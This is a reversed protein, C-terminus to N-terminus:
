DGEGPIGLRSRRRDALRRGENQCVPCYHTESDRFSILAIKTGCRPCPEGPRGHVAMERRWLDQKVPLGEPCAARVRAAWDTLTRRLAGHLAGIERDTLRHTLRLPSLRAAFLIEDSYANGIGSILSPDRLAGKVQRNTARLLEALREPTLDDSLPEVGREIRDLDGPAALVHLSAKRRTGAETMELVVDGATLSFVTRRRHPRFGEAPKLHLRGGLMLHFAFHLPGEVDVLLFKARRSAGLIRRGRAADPAPEVTRLVFPDWARADTVTRGALAEALRERYVVLEPLEPV